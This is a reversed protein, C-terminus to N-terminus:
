GGNSTTTPGSSPAPGVTVVPLKIECNAEVWDAVALASPETAYMRALALQESEADGPIVTSATEFALVLADWLEDIALPAEAALERYVDLLAEVDALSRLDPAVIAERQAALDTCFAERDGAEGGGCAALVLAPVALEVARRPASRM